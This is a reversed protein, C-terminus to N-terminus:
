KSLFTNQHWFFFGPASVTSRIRWMTHAHAICIWLNERLMCVEPDV